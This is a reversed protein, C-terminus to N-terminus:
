LKSGKTEREATWHLVCVSKLTGALFQDVQSTGWDNQWALASFVSDTCSGIQSGHIKNIVKLARTAQSRVHKLSPM